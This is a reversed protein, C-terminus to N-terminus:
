WGVLVRRSSSGAVHATVDTEDRSRSRPYAQHGRPLERPLACSNEDHATGLLSAFGCDVLDAGGRGRGVDAPEGGVKRREGVHAPQSNRHAIATRAQIDQDVVGTTDEQRALFTDIADLHRQREVM